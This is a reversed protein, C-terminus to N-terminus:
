ELGLLNSGATEMHILFQQKRACLCSIIYTFKAQNVLFHSMAFSNCCREDLVAQKEREREEEGKEIDVTSFCVSVLTLFLFLNAM